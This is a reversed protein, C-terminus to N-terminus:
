LLNQFHHPVVTHIHFIFSKSKAMQKNNHWEKLNYVGQRIHTRGSHEKYISYVVYYTNSVWQSLCVFIHM